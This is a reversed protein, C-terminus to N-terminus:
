QQNRRMDERIQEVRNTQRPADYDSDPMAPPPAQEPARDDSRSSIAYDKIIRAFLLVIVLTLAFIGMMSRASTGVLFMLFLMLVFLATYAIVQIARRMEKNDWLLSLAASGVSVLVGMFMSGFVQFISLEISEAEPLEEPRPGLLTAVSIILLIGILWGLGYARAYSHRGIAWYTIVGFSILLVFFLFVDSLVINYVLNSM